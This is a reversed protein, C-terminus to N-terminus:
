GQEDAGADPAGGMPRAQGDIDVAPVSTPDGRDVAAAGPRLHLDVGAPDVFDSPATLDTASCRAATWVNFRYDVGPTCAYGAMDGVNAIVHVGDTSSTRMPQVFSNYRVTADSTSADGFILTYYGELTAGFWNDEVLYGQNRPGAWSTVFVSQTACRAFTSRRIVVDRAGGIQLCDTHASPDRSRTADHFYAGDFTIREPVQSTANLPKVQAIDDPDSPGWDGGRVTVDSSGLVYVTNAVEGRPDIDELLVHNAFRPEFSGAVSRFAVWDAGRSGDQAGYSWTVSVRVDAGDAAPRFTVFDGAARKTADPTLTQGGYDGAAMLVTTGPTALHYARDVTRCPAAQSCPGADSGGPAMHLAPGAPVAAPPPPAPAPVPAPAPAPAPPSAAAADNAVRVTRSASRANGLRDTATVRLTHAGDREATTDWTGREGGFTWPAQRATWRLRGDVRFEVRRVGSPDSAAARFPVRGSLSAGAAPAAISVSPAARDAAKARHVHTRGLALAPPIAAGALALMGLPAALARLTRARRPSRDM